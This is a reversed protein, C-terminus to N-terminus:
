LTNQIDIAELDDPYASRKKMFKLKSKTFECLEDETVKTKIDRGVYRNYGRQSGPGVPAWTFRDSWNGSLAWRLDSVIQGATFSGLGMYQILSSWTEKMSDRNVNPPNDVIPQCVRNITQYQKTEKPLGQRGFGASIIYAASYNKMGAQQREDLLAEIKKPCWLKPFGVEKLTPINNLHRALVVAVVMNKHDKNPKYWQQYLWSSVKDDMRRVNCFRYTKLIKDDTWPAVDGSLKKDRIQDRERVWYFYIDEMSMKKVDRIRM